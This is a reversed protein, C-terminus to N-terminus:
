VFPLPCGNGSTATYVWTQDSGDPFNIWDVGGFMVVGGGPLAGFGPLALVRLM